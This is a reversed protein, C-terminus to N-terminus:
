RKEEQNLGESDTIRAIFAALSMDRIGVRRGVKVSELVGQQRLRDITQTSVSLAEAAQRRTLFTDM